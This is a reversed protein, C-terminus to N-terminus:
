VIVRELSKQQVANTSHHRLSNCVQRNPLGNEQKREAGHFRDIIVTAIREGEVWELHETTVIRIIMVNVVLNTCKGVNNKQRESDDM